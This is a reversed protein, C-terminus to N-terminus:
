RLVRYTRSPFLLFDRRTFTGTDPSGQFSFSGIALHENGKLLREPVGAIVPQVMAFHASGNKEPHDPWDAENTQVYAPVAWEDRVADLAGIHDFHAHTLLVAQPVAGSQEIIKKIKNFDEGPDIILCMESSEDILIYCNEQIPGVPCVMWKLDSM